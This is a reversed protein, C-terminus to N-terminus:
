TNGRVQLDIGEQHGHGEIESVMLGRHGIKKVRRVRRRSQGATELPIDLHAVGLYEGNPSLNATM